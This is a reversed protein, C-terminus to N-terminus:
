LDCWNLFNDNGMRNLLKMLLKSDIQCDRSMFFDKFLFSVENLNTFQSLVQLTDFLCIEYHSTGDSKTKLNLKNVLDTNIRINQKTRFRNILGFHACHNRLDIIIKTSNFLIHRESPLLGMDTVVKDLIDQKLGYILKLVSGLELTKIIVWLPPIEYTQLYNYKLKASDIYNNNDKNDHNTKFLNHGVFSVLESNQVTHIATNSNAAVHSYIKDVRINLAHIETLFNQIANDVTSPNLTGASVANFPTVSNMTFPTLTGIRSGIGSVSPTASIAGNAAAIVNNVNLISMNFNNKAKILRSRAKKSIYNVTTGNLVTIKSQIRTIEQNIFRYIQNNIDDVFKQTIRGPLLTNLRNHISYPNEYMLINLYFAPNSNPNSNFVSECFRYAISTKLRNEFSDIAKFVISALMKDFRYLVDFHEFYAGDTYEKNPKSKNLLLTEFGNIIDFYNKELLLDEAINENRFCLGRDKLLKIQGKLPIFKKSYIKKM